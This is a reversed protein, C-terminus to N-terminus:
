RSNNHRKQGEMEVINRNYSFMAELLSFIDNVSEENVVMTPNEITDYFAGDVYVIFLYSTKLSKDHTDLAYRFFSRISDQSLGALNIELFADGMLRRYLIYILRKEAYGIYDFDNKKIRKEKVCHIESLTGYESIEDLHENILDLDHLLGKEMLGCEIWHPETYIEFRDKNSEVYRVKKGQPHPAFHILVDGEKMEPLLISFESRPKLIIEKM